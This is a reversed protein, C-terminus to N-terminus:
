DAPDSARGMYKRSLRGFEDSSMYYNCLRLEFNDAHKVYKDYSHRSILEEIGVRAKVLLPKIMFPELECGLPHISMSFRAEYGLTTKVYYKSILFDDPQRDKLVSLQDVYGFTDKPNVQRDIVSKM